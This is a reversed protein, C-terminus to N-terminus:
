VLSSLERPKTQMSNCRGSGHGYNFKTLIQMLIDASRGVDDVAKFLSTNDSFKKVDCKLNVILDNFYVHFLLPGLVSGQLVGACILVWESCKGNLVVRQKRDTM